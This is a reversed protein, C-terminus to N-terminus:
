CPAAATRGSGGGSRRARRPTGPRTPWCTRWSGSSRPRDAELRLPCVAVNVPRHELLEASADKVVREVLEGLDVCEREPSVDPQALRDLDLLDNLLRNM